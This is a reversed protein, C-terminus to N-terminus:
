ILQDTTLYSSCHRSGGPLKGMPEMVTFSWIRPECMLCDVVTVIVIVKLM